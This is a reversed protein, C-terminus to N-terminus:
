PQEGPGATAQVATDPIPASHNDGRQAGHDPDIGALGRLEALIAEGSSQGVVRDDLVVAPAQGCAGVCRATLLSLAGDATTEGAKIHYAAAIDGLIEAAGKIYCATGLCVVCSHRGKPKLHFFHYFTVVGYVKSLPLTLATALRGMAEEDIYGYSQQVAHLAEILGGAQYGNRRMATEVPRWRPETKNASATANTPMFDEM